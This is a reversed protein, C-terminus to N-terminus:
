IRDKLGCQQLVKNALHRSMLSRSVTTQRGLVDNRWIEHSGKGQRVYEFGNKRLIATVEKYFGKVM